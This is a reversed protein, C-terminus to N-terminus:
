VNFQRLFAQRIRRYWQSALAEGGHDIRVYARTGLAINEGQHDFALDVLFVKERTLM